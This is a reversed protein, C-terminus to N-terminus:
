VHTVTAIGQTGQLIAQTRIRQSHGDGEEGEEANKTFVQKLPTPPPGGLYRFRSLRSAPGALVLSAQISHFKDSFPSTVWFRHFGARNHGTTEPEKKAKHKQAARHPLFCPSFALSSRASRSDSVPASVTFPIQEAKSKSQQLM